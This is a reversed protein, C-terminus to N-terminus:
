RRRMLERLVRVASDDPLAALAQAALRMGALTPTREEALRALWRVAAADARADGVRAFLTTLALADELSLRGLDRAAALALLVNGRDVARQFAGHPSGAAGV